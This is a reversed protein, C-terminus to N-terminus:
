ECLPPKTVEVCYNYAEAKVGGLANRYPAFCELSENYKQWQQQCAAKRSDEDTDLVTTESSTDSAPEETLPDREMIERAKERGRIAEAREPGTLTDILEPEETASAKYKDPVTDGYHVTGSEDIWKYIGAGYTMMSFSILFVTLGIQNIM